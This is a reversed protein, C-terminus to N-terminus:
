DAQNRGLVDDNRGVKLDLTRAEVILRDDGALAAAWHGTTYRSKAIEEGSFHLVSLLSPRNIQEMVYPEYVDKLISDILHFDAPTRQRYWTVDLQPALVLGAAATVGLFLFSRRSVQATRSLAGSVEPCVSDRAHTPRSASVSGRQEVHFRGCRPCPLGIRGTGEARSPDAHVGGGRIL